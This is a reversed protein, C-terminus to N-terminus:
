LGSEPQGSEEGGGAKTLLKLAFSRAILIRESVTIHPIDGARVGRRVMAEPLGTLRAFGPVTVFLQKKDNGKMEAAKKCFM